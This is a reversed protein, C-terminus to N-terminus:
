DFNQWKNVSEIHRAIQILLPTQFLCMQIMYTSKEYLKSVKIHWTFTVGACNKNDEGQAIIIM